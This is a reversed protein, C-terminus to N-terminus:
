VVYPFVQIQQLETPDVIKLRELHYGQSALAEDTRAFVEKAPVGEGLLQIYQRCFQESLTNSPSKMDLPPHEYTDYFRKRVLDELYIINPVQRIDTEKPPPTPPSAKFVDFWVPRSEYPLAGSKLLGRVRSFISSFKEVRAGPGAMDSVNVIFFVGFCSKFSAVVHQVVLVRFVIDM